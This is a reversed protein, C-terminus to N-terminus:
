PEANAVARKREPHSSKASECVFRPRGLIQPCRPSTHLWVFGVAAGDTSGLRMVRFALLWASIM